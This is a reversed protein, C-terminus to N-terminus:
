ILLACNLQFVPPSPPPHALLGPTVVGATVQIAGPILPVPGVADFAFGPQVKLTSGIVAPVPIAPPDAAEISCCTVPEAAVALGDYGEADCCCCCGAEAEANLPCVELAAVSANMLGTLMSLLAVAGAYRRARNSM